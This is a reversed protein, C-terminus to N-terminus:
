YNNNKLLHALILPESNNKDESPQWIIMSSELLNIKMNLDVPWDLCQGSDIHCKWNAEYGYITSGLTITFADSRVLENDIILSINGSWINSEYLLYLMMGDISSEKNFEISSEWLGELASAKVSTKMYFYLILILLVIIVGILIRTDIRELPNTM